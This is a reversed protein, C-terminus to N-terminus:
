AVRHGEARAQELFPRDASSFRALTVPTGSVTIGQELTHSWLIPSMRDIEDFPSEMQDLVVLLDLDSEEDADGRAYSGFLMVQQLRDGYLERLDAVVSAVLEDVDIGRGLEPLDPEPHETDYRGLSDPAVVEHDVLWEVARWEARHDRFKFWAQRLEDHPYLTDKFRRFAGRGEISRALQERMRQDRVRAIFEVMDQYGESSSAPDIYITDERADLDDKDEDDDADTHPIVEGTSLDLYWSIEYAHDELAEALSSLGVQSVALM